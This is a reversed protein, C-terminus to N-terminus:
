KNISRKFKEFKINKLILLCFFIFSFISIFRLITRIIDNYYLEYSSNSKLEVYMMHDNLSELKGKKLKWNTDYLFPIIFNIDKNGTNKILYKQNSLRQFKINKDFSFYNKSSTICEIYNESSKCIDKDKKYSLIVPSFKKKKAEYILLTKGNNHIEQKLRLFDTDINQLETKYTILYKINFLVFFNENIENFKPSLETYMKLKSKKIKNKHSNKFISNYVYIDYNLFDVIEYIKNKFFFNTKDKKHSAFYEYVKPSLYIKDITEKNSNSLIKILSSFETSQNNLSYAISESKYVKQNSM